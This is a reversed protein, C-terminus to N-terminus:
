AYALSDRVSVRAASRAPLISALISIILVILLWIGVATWNFAFDLPMNLITQGMVAALPQALVFALAVAFAWSMVGQMVGEMVFMGMLTRTRAGVARLVGIEKTREVVSISLAGMLAIGGVLAVLIALALLMSTILGFQSQVSRRLESETQFVAIDINREIAMDRLRDRAALAAPEDRATTRFILRTARDYQKTTNELATLPVYLTETNFAGSLLPQYLGVIKWERKGYVGLDLTVFDGVRLNNKNATDYPMVVALEDQAQLWRGALVRENFFDTRPDLGAVQSGLGAEQTRAGQKLVTASFWLQVQAASIDKVAHALELVRSAHPRGNLWATVDYRRAAFFNELTYDMSSSLTMVILFMTGAIVLVVQTLILRGKRRFLNGLATAYQTPLLKAGIREIMRDFRNSGFDGGLGYSAIAERVTIRAGSMVPVLAALVPVLIAAGVQLVVATNSIHFTDYDINFLNLFTRTIAFALFVALPLAVCLALMSYVLVNAFYLQAITWTRGGIAKMVGIQNTQQAILASLTNYVLVVSLLLSVVALIQLVLNIGEMYVRGWHKDPNQYFTAAVGIGQNALREKIDTAVQKAYAESYPAVRVYVYNFKGEPIGFRDMVQPSFFFFAQGGLQPPPVFPHRVLGTVPFTRVHDEQKFYVTDNIGYGNFSASLREVGINEGRPWEGTRLQVVDMHQKNWDDRMVAVGLKWPATPSFRYEFAIETYPEVDLVGPVRRIGEIQDRTAFRALAMNLHSPTVARHAADMGSLLQDTMGFVVGIAFVGAAISLVTLLTRVKFHWLDYWVKHWLTAM